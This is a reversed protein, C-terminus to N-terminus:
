IQHIPEKVKEMERTKRIRTCFQWIYNVCQLSNIEVQYIVHIPAVDLHSVHSFCGTDINHVRFDQLWESGSMERICHIENSKGPNREM